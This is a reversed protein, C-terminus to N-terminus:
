SDRTKDFEDRPIDKAWSCPSGYAIVFEQYTIFGDRYRDYFEFSRSASLVCSGEVEQKSLKGDNNKDLQIITYRDHDSNYMYKAQVRTAPAAARNVPAFGCATLTLFSLALLCTTKM